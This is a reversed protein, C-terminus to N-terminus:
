YEGGLIMDLAIICMLDSVSPVFLNFRWDNLYHMYAIYGYDDVNKM